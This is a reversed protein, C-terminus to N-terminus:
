SIKWEGEFLSHIRDMKHEIYVLVDVVAM